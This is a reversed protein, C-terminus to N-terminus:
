VKGQHTRRASSGAESSAARSAETSTHARPRGTEVQGRGAGDLEARPQRLRRGSNRRGFGRVAREGRMSRWGVMRVEMTIPTTGSTHIIDCTRNPQDAVSTARPVHSAGASVATARM